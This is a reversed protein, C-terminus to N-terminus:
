SKPRFEIRDGQRVHWLRSLPRNPTKGNFADHEEVGLERAVARISKGIFLAGGRDVGDVIITTKEGSTAGEGLQKM